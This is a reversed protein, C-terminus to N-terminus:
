ANFDAVLAAPVMNPIYPHNSELLVVNDKKNISTLKM